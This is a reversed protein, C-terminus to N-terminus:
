QNKRLSLLQDMVLQPPLSTFCAPWEPAAGLYSCQRRLCPACSFHAVLNIQQKGMLGTKEPDTPGFLGVTPINLASALHCLGTDVAVVASANAIVPALGEINLDPLVEAKAHQALRLSRAYEEQTGWALKINLHQQNLLQILTKWYTEPWHKNAWTTGHFFLVYPSLTNDLWCTKDVGYDAMTTSRPYYLAESFLQRIREVAHQNKSVTYKKKYFLSAWKERISSKDYGVSPSKIFGTILASKFLGQADIVLDYSVQNLTQHFKKLSKFLVRLNYNKNKKWRRLQIPIVREVAPHWQPIVQFKEEVVWDFKIGPIARMADTLAPLTHVVDGM